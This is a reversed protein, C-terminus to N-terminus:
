SQQSRRQAQPSDERFSLYIVNTLYMHSNFVITPISYALILYAATVIFM